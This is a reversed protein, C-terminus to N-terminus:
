AAGSHALREEEELRSLLYDIMRGVAARDPFRFVTRDSLRIRVGWVPAAGPRPESEVWAFTAEPRDAYEALIHPPIPWGTRDTSM